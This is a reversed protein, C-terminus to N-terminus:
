KTRGWRLYAVAGLANLCALRWAVKSGRVEAPDRDKLDREAVVVLGLSVATLLLVWARRAPSMDRFRQKSSNSRM